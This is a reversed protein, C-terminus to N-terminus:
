HGGQSLTVLVADRDFSDGEKFHVQDVVGDELSRIVTELKM